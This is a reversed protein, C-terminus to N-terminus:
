KVLLREYYKIYHNISDELHHNKSEAVSHREFSEKSKCIRVISDIINKVTFENIVIGSSGSSTECSGGTNFTIVPLGCANAEMNVTPFTDELTPNLFVDAISYLNALENPDSVKNINIVNLDKLITRDQVHGVLVIQYENKDLKQALKIFYEIGKQKTWNSAVGLIINKKQDLKLYDRSIERRYFIKCNVGNEIVDIANNKLYSDLIINKLWISPTVINLRMNSLLKKKIKLMKKSNDIKSVPYDKLSCCHGCKDKWKNCGSYLFHPCKGTILWCDHMTLVCKINRKKIFKLIMPVNVYCNHLNHLHIIDPNIKKIKGILQKTGFVSFLGGLGFIKGMLQHFANEIYFGFYFHHSDKRNKNNKWKMSFTYSEHGLSLLTESLNKMITGTSGYDVMNIQVVKM